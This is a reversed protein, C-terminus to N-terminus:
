LPDEPETPPDDIEPIFEDLPELGALVEALSPVKDPAQGPQGSLRAESNKVTVDISCASTWRSGSGSGLAPLRPPRRPRRRHEPPGAGSHGRRNLMLWPVFEAFLDPEFAVQYMHMPHPGVLKDRWRGLRVPFRAILDTRVAAATPRTAQDYYVHAHYSAIAAPPLSIM